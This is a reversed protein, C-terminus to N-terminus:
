RANPPQASDPTNAETDQIADNPKQEAMTPNENSESLALSADRANNAAAQKDKMTMAGYALLLILVGLVIMAPRKYNADIM